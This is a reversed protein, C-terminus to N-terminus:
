KPEHRAMSAKLDDILARGNLGMGDAAAIWGAEVFATAARLRATDAESLTAITNGNAVASQRGGAEVEDWRAGILKSGSLGVGEIAAQQEPTLRDWSRRNMAVWFATGYLGQPIELHHTAIKTLRFGVLAEWPFQTADVTGRQLAETTGGPPIFVPAAGLRKLIAIGTGGARIKMGKLDALSTLPRTAHWLFPAHTFAAILRTDHFERKDFGNKAYWEWLGASAAAASRFMFPVEMARFLAFRKPTFAAVGYAIDVAGKRALDYQGPAPALSTKMLDIKITGGTAKRVAAAWLPLTKQIHHAPPLWNAMRLKTEAGALGSLGPVPGLILVAALAAGARVCTRRIVSM